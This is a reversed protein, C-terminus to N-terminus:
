SEQPLRDSNRNVRGSAAAVVPVIEAPAAARLLEALAAAKRSRARTAAVAESTAVVDALLM